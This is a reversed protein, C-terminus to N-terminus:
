VSSGIWRFHPFPCRAFCVASQFREPTEGKEQKHDRHLIDLLRPTSTLLGSRIVAFVAPNLSMLKLNRQIIAPPTPPFLVASVVNKGFFLPSGNRRDVLAVRAHPNENNEAASAFSAIAHQKLLLVHHPFLVVSTFTESYLYKWNLRGSALDELWVVSGGSATCFQVQDIAADLQWSRSTEQM